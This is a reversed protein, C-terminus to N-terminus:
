PTIWSVFFGNDLLKRKNGGNFDMIYMGKDYLGEDGYGSTIISEGDLTWVLLGSGRETLRTLESGDINVSYYVLDFFDGLVHEECNISNFLIKKSNPSWNSINMICLSDDSIIPTVKGSEIDLVYLRSNTDKNYYNRFALKRSDPSWIIQEAFFHSENTLKSLDHRAIEKGSQDFIIVFNKNNEYVELAIYRGNPSWGPFRFLVAASTNYIQNLETGDRRMTSVDYYPTEASGTNMINIYQSDPSWAYIFWLIPDKTNGQDLKAIIENKLNYIILPQNYGASCGYYQGNPSWIPEIRNDDAFCPIATIKEIRSPDYLDTRYYNYRHTELNYRKFIFLQTDKQTCSTLAILLTAGLTMKAFSQITSHM